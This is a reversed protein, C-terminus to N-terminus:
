THDHWLRRDAKDNWTIDWQSQNTEWRLYVFAQIDDGILNCFLLLRLTGMVHDAKHIRQDTPVGHHVESIFSESEYGKQQTLPASWPETESM